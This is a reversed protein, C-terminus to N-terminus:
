FKTSEDILTNIYKVYVINNSFPTFNKRRYFLAKELNIYNLMTSCLTDTKSDKHIVQLKKAYRYLSILIAM